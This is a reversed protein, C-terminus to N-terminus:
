GGTMGAGLITSGDCSRSSHVSFLGAGREGAPDAAEVARAPLSSSRLRRALRSRYGRGATAEVCLLVARRVRDVGEHSKSTGRVRLRPLRRGREQPLPVPGQRASIPTTRHSCYRARQQTPDQLLGNSAAPSIRSGVRGGGRISRGRKPSSRSCIQHASPMGPM